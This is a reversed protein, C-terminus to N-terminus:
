VFRRSAADLEMLSAVQRQYRVTDEYLGRAAISDQGQYYAALAAPVDGRHTDLLHKILLSGALVNDAALSIELRRGAVHKSVWEASVREIQMIGVAGTPSVLDQRWGSEVWAIARLLRADVGTFAATDTLLANCRVLRGPIVLWDGEALPANVGIGNARALATPDVGFQRAAEFVGEGRQVAHMETDPAHRTYAPLALTPDPIRLMQGARIREPDDIRNSEVLARVTTGHRAAIDLLTDGPRVVYTSAIVSVPLTAVATAGLAAATLRSSTTM